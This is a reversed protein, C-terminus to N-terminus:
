PIRGAAALEEIRAEEEETVPSSDLLATEYPITEGPPVCHWGPFQHSLYSVEAANLGRLTEIVRDVIAIEDGGFVALDPLKLAVTRKQTYGFYIRQQEAALGARYLEELVPKLRRPAPGKELRVYEQGTIPEERQLYAVFDAYFLIKNLKTAGFREDCECQAAIYLILQALKQDAQAIM